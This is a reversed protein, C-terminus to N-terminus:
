CAAAMCLRTLSLSYVGGAGHSEKFPPEANLLEYLGSCEGFVIMGKRCFRGFEYVSEDTGPQGFIFDCSQVQIAVM